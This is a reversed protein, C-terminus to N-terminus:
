NGKHHRRRRRRLGHKNSEDHVLIAMPLTKNTHEFTFVVFLHLEKVQLRSFGARDLAILDSEQPFIDGTLFCDLLHTNSWEDGVFDTMRQRDRASHPLDSGDIKGCNVYRESLVVANAFAFFQLDVASLKFDLVRVSALNEALLASLERLQLDSLNLFLQRLGLEEAVAFYLDFHSVCYSREISLLRDSNQRKGVFVPLDGRASKGKRFLEDPFEDLVLNRGDLTGAQGFNQRLKSQLIGSEEVRIRLLPDSLLKSCIRQNSPSHNWRALAFARLNRDPHSIDLGPGNDVPACVNSPREVLREHPAM